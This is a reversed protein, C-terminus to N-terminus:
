INRSNNLIDSEKVFDFRNECYIYFNDYINLLNDKVEFIDNLSDVLEEINYSYEHAVDNRIKRLKIWETRILLEMKELRNLIDIFPKKSFDEELLFLITSFLKEGMSDQLKSFRFLFQDIYGVEDLVLNLYKEKTLPLYNKIHNYGNNIMIKHQNCEYLVMILKQEIENM